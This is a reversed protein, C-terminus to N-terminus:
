AFACLPNEPAGVSLVSVALCKGRQGPCTIAWFELEPLKHSKVEHLSCYVLSLFDSNWDQNQKLISM